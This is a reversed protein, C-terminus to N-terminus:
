QLRSRQGQVQFEPVSGTRPLEGGSWYFNRFRSGLPKHIGSGSILNIIIYILKSIIKSSSFTQIDIIIIQIDLRYINQIM